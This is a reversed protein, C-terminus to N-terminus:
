LVWCKFFLTSQFVQHVMANAQAAAPRPLTRCM